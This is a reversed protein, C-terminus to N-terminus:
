VFCFDLMLVFYVAYILIVYKQSITFDKNIELLKCNGKTRKMEEMWDVINEFMLTRPKTQTEIFLVYSLHM